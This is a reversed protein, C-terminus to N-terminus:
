NTGPCMKENSEALLGARALVTGVAEAMGAYGADAATTRAILVIDWGPRLNVRRMVERLVRKVRNRIVAGGVRHSVVFGYRSPTDERRVVKLVVLRQVWSGGRELVLAFDQRRKLGESKMGCDLPPM